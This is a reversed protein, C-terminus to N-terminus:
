VHGEETLSAQMIDLRQNICHQDLVDLGFVPEYDCEYEETKGGVSLEFARGGKHTVSWPVGQHVGKQNLM